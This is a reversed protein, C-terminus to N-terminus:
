AVVQAGEHDGRHLPAVVALDVDVGALDRPSLLPDRGRPRLPLAMAVSGILRRGMMRASIVAAPPHMGNARKM